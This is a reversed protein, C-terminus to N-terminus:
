RFSSIVLHQSVVRFWQLSLQLEQDVCADGFHDVLLHLGMSLLKEFVHILLTLSNVCDDIVVDFLVCCFECFVLLHIPLYSIVTRLVKVHLFDIIRVIWICHRGCNWERPRMVVHTSWKRMFWEILRILRHIRAAVM